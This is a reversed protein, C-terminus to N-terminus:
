NHPAKLYPVLDKCSVLGDECICYIILLPPKRTTLPVHCNKNMHMHTTNAARRPSSASPLCRVLPAVSDSLLTMEEPKIEPVKIFSNTNRPAINRLCDASFALGIIFSPLYALQLQMLRCSHGPRHVAFSPKLPSPPQPAKAM